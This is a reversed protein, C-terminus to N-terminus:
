APREAPPKGHATIERAGDKVPIEITLKVGRTSRFELTVEFGAAFAGRSESGLFRQTRRQVAGTKVLARRDRQALFNAGTKIRSRSGAQRHSATAVAMRIIAETEQNEQGRTCFLAAEAGKVAASIM